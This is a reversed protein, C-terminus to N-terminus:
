LGKGSSPKRYPVQVRDQRKLRVPPADWRDLGEGMLYSGAKGQITVGWFGDLGCVVTGPPVDRFEVLRTGGIRPNSIRPKM